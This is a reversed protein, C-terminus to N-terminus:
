VWSINLFGRSVHLLCRVYGLATDLVTLDRNHDTGLIGYHLERVINVLCVTICGDGKINSSKKVGVGGQRKATM